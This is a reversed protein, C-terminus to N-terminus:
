FIRIRVRADPADVDVFTGSLAALLAGLRWYLTLPNVGAAVCVIAVLPFLVIALPGLLLILLPTLPLWLNLKVRDRARSGRRRAPPALPALANM